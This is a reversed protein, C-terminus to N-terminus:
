GGLNGDSSAEVKLLGERSLLEVLERIEQLLSLLQNAKEKVKEMNDLNINVLISDKPM